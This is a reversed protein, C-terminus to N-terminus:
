LYSYLVLLLTELANSCYSSGTVKAHRAQRELDALDNQSLVRM